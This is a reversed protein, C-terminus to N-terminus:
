VEEEVEFEDALSPPLNEAAFDSGSDEGNEEEGEAGEGEDGSEIYPV